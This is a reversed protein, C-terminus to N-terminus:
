PTKNEIQQAVFTRSHDNSCISSMTVMPIRVVVVFQAVVFQAVVLQAVVLQAVVLQAVAAGELRQQAAVM